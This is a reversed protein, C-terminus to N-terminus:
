AANLKRADARRHSRDALHVNLTLYPMMNAHAAGGARGVATPSMTVLPPENVYPTMVLPYGGKDMATAQALIMM